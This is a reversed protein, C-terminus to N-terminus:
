LTKRGKQAPQRWLHNVGPCRDQSAPSLCSAHDLDLVRQAPHPATPAAIPHRLGSDQGQPWIRTLFGSLKTVLPDYRSEQHRHPWVVWASSESESWRRLWM